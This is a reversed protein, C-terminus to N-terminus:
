AEYLKDNPKNGYLNELLKNQKEQEKMQDYAMGAGIAAQGVGAAAQAIAAPVKQMGGIQQGRIAQRNAEYQADVQDKRAAGAAAIQSAIDAVTKASAEKIAAVQENTSGMVAATGAAARNSRKIREMAETLIRQADARQTADENYHRDYWARNYDLEKALERNALDNAKKAKIAGVISAAAGLGAGILSGIM